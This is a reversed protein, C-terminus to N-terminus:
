DTGVETRAGDALLDVGQLDEADVRDVTQDQGADDGRREDGHQEVTRDDGDAQDAAEDETDVHLVDGRTGVDGGERQDGAQGLDDDRDDLREGEAEDGPQDAAVASQRHGAAGFAKARRHVFSQHKGHDSQESDVDDQRSDADLESRPVSMLVAATIRDRYGRAYELAVLHADAGPRNM